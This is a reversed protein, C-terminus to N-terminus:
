LPRKLILDKLVSALGSAHARYQVYRTLAPGLRALRRAPLNSRFCLFQLHRRYAPLVGRGQDLHMASLADCIERLERASEAVREWHREGRTQGQARQELKNLFGVQQSSHIRYRILPQDIPRLDGFAAVIMAIWEDHIWGAPIPLCRDRLTARFM